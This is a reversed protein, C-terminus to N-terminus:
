SMRRRSLAFHAQCYSSGEMKGHGCFSIDRDGYPWRCDSPELELLALGRPEVEACHLGVIEVNEFITVMRKSEPSYRQRSENKIKPPPAQKEFSSKINNLRKALRMRSARGICANRTFDTGFESNITSAMSNFSPADAQGHLQTLRADHEINWSTMRDGLRKSSCRRTTLGYLIQKWLGHRTPIM